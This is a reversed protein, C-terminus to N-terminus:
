KPEFTRSITRPNARAYTNRFFRSRHSVRNGAARKIPSKSICLILGFSLRKVFQARAKLVKSGFAALQESLIDLYLLDTQKENLQKLYQNRQKLIAQYQVLDYLYIPNIQGLEM